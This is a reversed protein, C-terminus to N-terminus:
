IASGIRRQEEVTLQPRTGKSVLALLEGIDHTKPFEINKFTLFAKLYKEV